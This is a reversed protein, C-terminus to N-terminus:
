EEGEPLQPDVPHKRLMRRRTSYIKVGRAAYYKRTRRMRPIDLNYIVRRLGLVYLVFLGAIWTCSSIGLVIAGQADWNWVSWVWPVVQSLMGLPLVVMMLRDRVVLAEIDAKSARFGRTGIQTKGYGRIVGSTTNMSVTYRSGDHYAWLGCSHNDNDCIENRQRSRADAMVREYVHQPWVVKSWDPHAGPRRLFDLMELGRNCYVQNGKGKDWRYGSATHTAPGLTGDRWVTFSRVGRVYGFGLPWGSCDDHASSKM